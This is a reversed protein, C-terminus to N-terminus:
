PMARNLAHRVAALAVHSAAMGLAALAWERQSSWLDISCWVLAMAQVVQLITLVVQGTPTTVVVGVTAGAVRAALAM